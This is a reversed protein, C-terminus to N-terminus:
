KNGHSFKGIESRLFKSTAFLSQSATDLRKKGYRSILADRSAATLDARTEPSYSGSKKHWIYTDPSIALGWGADTARFCYDNEEGYGRPFTIEDFYGIDAMVERRVAFCFGHVLPVRIPHGWDISELLGNVDAMTMGPPLENIVTQRHIREQSNPEVRPISQYSAANSLPGVIGVGNTGFLTRALKQIWNKPVETDSNLIIAMQGSSERLGKNAAKTFGQAELNRSLVTNQHEETFFELISQTETDSGDDILIIRHKVPDRTRAVSNLCMETLHPANHVPIIIDVTPDTM